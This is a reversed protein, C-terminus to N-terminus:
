VICAGGGLSSLAAAHAGPDGLTVDLLLPVLSDHLAQQSSPTAPQHGPQKEEHRSSRAATREKLVAVMQQFETDIDAAVQDDTLVRYGAAALGKGCAMARDFADRTGAADAFPKQHNFAGDSDIFFAAQMAPCEISVNGQDTAAGPDDTIEALRDVTKAGLDNMYKTFLGCMVKNARLDLYPKRNNYHSPECGTADCEPLKCATARAKCGIAQAGSKFCTTVKQRVDELDEKTEARISYEARMSDPIMNAAGRKRPDEEPKVIGNVRISPKFQQRLLAISIHSAVLADLANRGDWPKLGAHATQGQFTVSLKQSALSRTISVAKLHADSVLAGPHAMLCANVSHYAGQEILKLKGGGGEEAPTGLLKVIGPKGSEKLATWCGIFAAASASAILNHGCAHGVRPLADYEANFVVTRPSGHALDGLIKGEILFCTEMGYQARSVTVDLNEKQLGDFFDCIADHAIKEHFALEPNGWIKQNLVWLREGNSSASSRM